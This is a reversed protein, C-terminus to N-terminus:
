RLALSVLGPGHPLIGMRDRQGSLIPIRDWM